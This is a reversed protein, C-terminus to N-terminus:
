KKVKYESLHVKIEDVTKKLGDEISVIPFWDLSEKAFSIDPILQKAAYPLREKFEIKSDSNTLEKVLKAIEVFQIERMDGLNVPTNVDSRILRILAEVMDSIFCYSGTEQETGHIKIPQNALASVIFDPIMRGDDAKMRPGYTNFVRAIKADLKFKNHYNTVLSEAFRKGENYCSRPGIPNVHGWEDEKIGTESDVDGYIASSSLLLFKAKYKRAIELANLTAHSNALLTEIPFKNYEKPSTPCALHYVEQFGQLECKFKKLEPFDTVQFPQTLDHKIFEFNPNQLLHDINKESGTSFNDVVVVQNDKVLADVLHSGIFGAGGTILINKKGSAYKMYILLNDDRIGIPILSGSM